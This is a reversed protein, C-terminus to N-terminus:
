VTLASAVGCHDYIQLSMRAVPPPLLPGPVGWVKVSTQRPLGLSGPLGSIQRFKVPPGAAARSNSASGSRTARAYRTVALVAACAAACAACRARARPAIRHSPCTIYRTHAHTRYDYPVATGCSYPCTPSSRARPGSLPRFKVAQRPHARAAGLSQRPTNSPIQRPPGSGM